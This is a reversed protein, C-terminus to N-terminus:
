PRPAARAGHGAQNDEGTERGGTSDRRTRRAEANIEDRARQGRRARM